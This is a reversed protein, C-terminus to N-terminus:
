CIPSLSGKNRYLKCSTVNSYSSQWSQVDNFRWTREQSRHQALPYTLARSCMSEGPLTQHWRERCGPLGPDSEPGSLFCITPLRPVTFHRWVLLDACVYVLLSVPSPQQIIYWGRSTQSSGLARHWRRHKNTFHQAAFSPFDGSLLSDEARWQRESRQETSECQDRHFVSLVTNIGGALIITIM